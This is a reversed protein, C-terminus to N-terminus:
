RTNYEDALRENNTQVCKRFEGPSMRKPSSHSILVRKDEEEILEVPPLIPNRIQSEPSIKMNKGQSSGNNNPGINNKEPIEVAAQIPPSSPSRGHKPSRPSRSARADSSTQQARRNALVKEKENLAQELDMILAEQSRVKDTLEHVRRKQAPDKLSDGVAALQETASACNWHALGQDRMAACAQAKFDLAEQVLAQAQADEDAELAERDESTLEARKYDEQERLALVKGAQCEKRVALMELREVEIKAFRHPGGQSWNAYKIGGEALMDELDKVANELVMKDGIRELATQESMRRQEEAEVLKQHAQKLQHQLREVVSLGDGDEQGVQELEETSVEV